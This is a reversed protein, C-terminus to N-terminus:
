MHAHTKKHQTKKHEKIKKTVYSILADSEGNVMNQNEELGSGSVMHFAVDMVKLM